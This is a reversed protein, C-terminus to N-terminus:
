RSTGGVKCKFHNEFLARLKGDEGIVEYCEPSLKQLFTVTGDEWTEWKEGRLVPKDKKYKPEKM